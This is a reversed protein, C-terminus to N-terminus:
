DPDDALSRLRASRERRLTDILLNWAADRVSAHEARGTAGHDRAPGGRTWPWVDEGDPPPGGREVNLSPPM